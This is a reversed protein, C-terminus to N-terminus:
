LVFRGFDLALKNQNTKDRKKPTERCSSNSFVVCINSFIHLDACLPFICMGEVVGTKIRKAQRLKCVSASEQESFPDADHSRKNAPDSSRLSLAPM